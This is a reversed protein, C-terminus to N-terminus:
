ALGFERRTSQIINDLNSKDTPNPDNDPRLRKPDYIEGTSKSFRSISVQYISPKATENILWGKLNKILYGLATYSKLWKIRVFHYEKYEADASFLSRFHAIKVDEVYGDSVLQRLLSTSISKYKSRAKSYLDYTQPSLSNTKKPKAKRTSKKRLEKLSHILSELSSKIIYIFSLRFDEREIDNKTPKFIKPETRNKVISVLSKTLGDSKAVRRLKVVLEDIIASLEMIKQVDNSCKKRLENMYELLKLQAEEIDVKYLEILRSKTREPGEVEEKYGIYAVVEPMGGSMTKVLKLYNIEPKQSYDLKNDSM